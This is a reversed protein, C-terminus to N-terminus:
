FSFGTQILPIDRFLVYNRIIFGDNEFLLFGVEFAGGSKNSEIIAGGGVSFGNNMDQAQLVTIIFMLIIIFSLKKTNMM